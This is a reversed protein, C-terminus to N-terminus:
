LIGGLGRVRLAETAFSAEFDTVLCSLSAAFVDMFAASIGGGGSGTGGAPIKSGSSFAKNPQRFTRQEAKIDM